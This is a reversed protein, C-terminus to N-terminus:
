AGVARRLLGPRGAPAAGGGGPAVPVESALREQLSAARRALAVARLRADAEAAEARAAVPDLQPGVAPEPVARVPAPASLISPRGAGRPRSPGVAAAPASVPRAASRTIPVPAVPAADPYVAVCAVVYIPADTTSPAPAATTASRGTRAVPVPRVPTRRPVPSGAIDASGPAPSPAAPPAGTPAPGAGTPPTGMRTRASRAERMADRDYSFRTIPVAPTRREPAVTEADVRSRARVLEPM